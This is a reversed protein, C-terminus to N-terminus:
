RGRKEKPMNEENLWVGPFAQWPCVHHQCDAQTDARVHFSPHRHVDPCSRLRRTTDTQRAPHALARQLRVTGLVGESWHKHLNELSSSGQFRRSHTATYGGLDM